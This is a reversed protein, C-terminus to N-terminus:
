AGAPSSYRGPRRPFAAPRLHIQRAAPHDQCTIGVVVLYVGGDFLLPTGVHLDGFLPLSAPASPLTRPLGPGFLAPALSTLAALLLGCAALRIPDFRLYRDVEQM